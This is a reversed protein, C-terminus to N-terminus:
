SGSLFGQYTKRGGFSWSWSQFMVTIEIMAKAGGRLFSQM